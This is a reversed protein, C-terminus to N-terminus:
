VASMRRQPLRTILPALSAQQRAIRATVTRSRPAHALHMAPLGRSAAAVHPARCCADHNEIIAKVALAGPAASGALQRFIAQTDTTPHM